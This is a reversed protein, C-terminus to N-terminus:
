NFLNRGFNFSKLIAWFKPQFSYFEAKGKMMLKLKFDEDTGTRIYVIQSLYGQMEEPDNYYAEYKELEMKYIYRKEIFMDGSVVELHIYPPPDYLGDSAWFTIGDLKKKKNQDIFTWGKPYKISVNLTSETYVQDLNTTDAIVDSFSVTKLEQVAETTQENPLLQEHKVPDDMQEEMLNAKPNVFEKTDVTFFLSNTKGREDQLGYIFVFILIFLFHLIISISFNRIWNKNVVTNEIESEQKDM